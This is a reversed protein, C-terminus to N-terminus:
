LSFTIVYIHIYSGVYTSPSLGHMMIMLKIMIRKLLELVEGIVSM